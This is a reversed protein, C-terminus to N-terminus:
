VSSIALGVIVAVAVTVVLDTILARRWYADKFYPLQLAAAIVLWFTGAMLPVTLFAGRAFMRPWLTSQVERNYGTDSHTFTKETVFWVHTVLLYGSITILLVTNFAAGAEPVISDIWAAVVVISVLHVAQDIFYSSTTWEPRGDTLRYKAVDVLFHFIALALIQPWVETRFPGVLLLLTLLHIGGHLLLGWFQSKSRVLWMPQLPYDGLLHALFLNWFM